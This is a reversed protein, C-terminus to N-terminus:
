HTNDKPKAEHEASNTAEVDVAILGDAPFIQKVVHDLLQDPCLAGPLSSRRRHFTATGKVKATV